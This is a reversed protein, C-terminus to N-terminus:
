SETKKYQVLTMRENVTQLATVQGATENAPNIDHDQYRELLPDFAAKLMQLIQEADSVDARQLTVASM